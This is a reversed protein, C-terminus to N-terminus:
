RNIAMEVLTLDDSFGKERLSHIHSRIYEVVSRGQLKEIFNPLDPALFSIGPIAGKDDWMLDSYLVLSSGPPLPLTRMEYATDSTIGLPLGAGDGLLFQRQEPVYVFPHTFGASVYNFQKQEIDILGILCTCFQGVSILETLDNNLINMLKLLNLGQQRHQLFLTHLRFISLSASIGKGSFDCIWVMIKNPAVEYMGWLDGSLFRAPLFLSDIKLNYKENFEQLKSASPLLSTQLELARSIEERTVTQYEELVGILFGNQLHVKVRALLEAKHIPKSIIDTAGYEWAQKRQQLDTSITQVLIPIKSYDSHTRLTRIVEIGDIFPMVIDLIILDPKKIKIKELADKGDTATIVNKYGNNILYETILERNLATDDVVLIYSDQLKNIDYHITSHRDMGAEGEGPVM